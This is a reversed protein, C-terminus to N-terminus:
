KLEFCEPKESYQCIPADKMWKEADRKVKRTLASDCELGDKCDTWFPCFTMDKYCFMM